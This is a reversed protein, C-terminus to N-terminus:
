LRAAQLAEEVLPLGVVQALQAIAEAFDLAVSAPELSQDVLQEVDRADRGASKPEFAFLELEDREGAFDDAAEDVVLRLLRGGNSAIRCAGHEASPIAEPEILDDAVENRVGDFVSIPLGDVDGHDARCRAGHKPYAVM